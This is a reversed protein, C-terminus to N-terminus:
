IRTTKSSCLKIKALLEGNTPNFSEIYDLTSNNLWKDGGICAGINIEKIGLEKIIKNM